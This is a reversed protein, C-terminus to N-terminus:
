AVSGYASCCVRFLFLKGLWRVFFVVFLLQARASNQLLSAISMAALERATASTDSLTEILVPVAGAERAQAQCAATHM